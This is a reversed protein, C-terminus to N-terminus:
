IRLTNVLAGRLSCRKEASICMSRRGNSLRGSQFRVRKESFNFHRRSVRYRDIGNRNPLRMKVDFRPARNDGDFTWGSGFRAAVKNRVTERVPVPHWQGETWSIPLTAPNSGAVMCPSAGITKRCDGVRESITKM